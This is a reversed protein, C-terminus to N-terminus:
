IMIYNIAQKRETSSQISIDWIYLACLSTIDKPVIKHQFTCANIKIRRMYGDCLAEIREEYSLPHILDLILDEEIPKIVNISGSSKHICGM